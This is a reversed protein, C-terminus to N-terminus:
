LTNQGQKFMTSLLFKRSVNTNYIKTLYFHNNQNITNPFDFNILIDVTNGYKLFGSAQTSITQQVYKLTYPFSGLAMTPRSSNAPIVKASLVFINNCNFWLLSSKANDLLFLDLKKRHLQVELHIKWFITLYSLLLLLFLQCSFPLCQRIDKIFISSFHNCHSKCM